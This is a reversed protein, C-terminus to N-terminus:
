VSARCCSLCYCRVEPRLPKSKVSRPRDLETRCNGRCAVKNGWPGARALDRLGSLLLENRHWETTRNGLCPCNSRTRGSASWSPALPPRSQGACGYAPIAYRSVWHPEIPFYRYPTQIWRRPALKRIERALDCRRQHGGVHEILSNSFVLDFDLETNSEALVDSARCADGKLAVINNFEGTTPDDLNIVTIQKPRVPSRLWSEITGGLDLIRMREVGPFTAHFQRWRKQRARGGLSGPSDVVLRRISSM